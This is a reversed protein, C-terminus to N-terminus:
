ASHRVIHQIDDHQTDNHQTDSITTISFTTMSLTLISLTPAGRFKSLFIKVANELMKFSMFSVRMKM